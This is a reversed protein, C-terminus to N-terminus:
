ASKLLDKQEVEEFYCQPPTKTVGCEGRECARQPSHPTKSAEEFCNLEKPTNKALEALEARPGFM